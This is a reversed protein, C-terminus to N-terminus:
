RVVKKQINTSTLPEPLIMIVFLGCGDDVPATDRGALKTDEATLCFTTHKLIFIQLALNPINDWVLQRMMPQPMGRRMIVTQVPALIMM